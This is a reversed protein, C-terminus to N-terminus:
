GMNALIEEPTQTSTTVMFQDFNITSGFSWIGLKIKYDKGAEWEPTVNFKKWTYAATSGTTSGIAQYSYGIGDVWTGVGKSSSNTTVRVWIYYKGTVDPTIILEIDGPTDEKLANGVPNRVAANIVKGNSAGAKDVITGNTGKLAADEAEIVATGGQTRIPKSEGCACVGNTYVHIHREAGCTDCVTDADDTYVHEGKESVKDTHECTAAHWHHTADKSWQTSFTHEHNKVYPDNLDTTIYIEDIQVKAAYGRFRLAYTEGATWHYSKVSLPADAPQLYEEHVRVWYFDSANESYTGDKKHIPQRWFYPDTIKGEANVGDIQCYVADGAASTFLNPTYVKLWIYHEGTVDATVYYTAHSIPDQGNHASADWYMLMNWASHNKNFVLAKGANAVANNTVSAPASTYNAIVNETGAAALIGEEAEIKVKGGSTTFPEATGCGTCVRNVFTHQAENQRAGCACEQWHHTNTVSWATAYNHEHM